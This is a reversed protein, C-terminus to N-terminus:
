KGRSRANRVVWDLGLIAGFVPWIWLGYFVITGHAHSMGWTGVYVLSVAPGLLRTWTLGGVTLGAAAVLSLPFFAMQIWRGWDYGLFFLPVVAAFALILAVPPAWRPGNALRVGLFPLACLAAQGAYVWVEGWDRRGYVYDWADSTSKGLHTFPGGCRALGAADCMAQADRVPLGALHLVSLVSAIATAAIAAVVLGRQSGPRLTAVWAALAFVPGLLLISEHVYISLGFAACGTFLWVRMARISGSLAGQLVLAIALYGLMEKRLSGDPDYAFFLLGWPALVLVVLGPDDPLHRYLRISLAFLAAGFACILCAAWISPAGGFLGALFLVADGGLGRRVPGDTSNILLDLVVYRPAEPASLTRFLLIAATALFGAWLM